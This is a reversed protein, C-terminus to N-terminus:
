RYSRSSRHQHRLALRSRDALYQCFERLDAVGMSGPFGNQWAENAVELHMIKDERGAIGALVASLVCALAGPFCSFGFIIISFRPNLPQGGVRVKSLLATGITLALLAVNVSVLIAGYSRILSWDDRRFLRYVGLLFLAFMLGCLAWLGFYNRVYAQGLATRAGTVPDVTLARGAHARDLVVLRTGDSTWGVLQDARGPPVPTALLHGARDVVVVAADATVPLVLILVATLASILTARSPM